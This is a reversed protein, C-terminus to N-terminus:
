CISLIGAKCYHGRGQVSCKWLNSFCSITETNYEALFEMARVTGSVSDIANFIDKLM